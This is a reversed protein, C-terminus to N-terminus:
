ATALTDGLTDFVGGGAAGGLIHHHHWLAYFLLVWAAFGERKGGTRFIARVRDPYAIEEIGPQRSVIEGLHTGHHSIWEAVPVTFGRKRSFPKAEPM